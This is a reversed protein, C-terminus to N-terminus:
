AKASGGAKYFDYNDGGDLISPQSTSMTGQTISLLAGPCTRIQGIRKGSPVKGTRMDDPPQLPQKPVGMAGGRKEGGAPLSITSCNRWAGGLTNNM